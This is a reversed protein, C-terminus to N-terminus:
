STSNARISYIIKVVNVSTKNRQMEKFENSKIMRDYEV